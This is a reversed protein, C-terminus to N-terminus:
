IGLKRRLQEVDFREGVPLRAERNEIHRLLVDLQERGKKTRAAARPTKGGLAPIPEDLWDEYFTAKMQQLIEAPLPEPPEGGGAKSPKKEKRWGRRLLDGCVKRM